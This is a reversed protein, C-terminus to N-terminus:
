SCRNCAKAETLAKRSPCGALCGAPLTADAEVPLPAEGFSWQCEQTEFNPAVTLELGLDDKFFAQAPLKCQHVCLGKCGSEQLFRCKEVVLGGLQGDARFNPVSPGVLFKFFLPTVWSTLAPAYFWPGLQRGGLVGSMFVKYFPPGLPTFLRRLVRVVMQQQEEESARLMYHRGEEALGAMAPQASAFGIEDQVFRRFVALLLADLPSDAYTVNALASGVLSGDALLAVESSVGAVVPVGQSNPLDARSVKGGLRAVAALYAPRDLSLLRALAHRRLALWRPRESTPASADLARQAEDVLAVAGAAPAFRARALDAAIAAAGRAAAGLASGVPAQAPSSMRLPGRPGARASAAVRAPGVAARAAAALLALALFSRM